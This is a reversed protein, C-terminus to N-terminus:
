ENENGEKMSDLTYILNMTIDEWEGTNINYLLVNHEYGKSLIILGDNSMDHIKIYENEMNIKEDKNYIELISEYTELKYKIICKRDNDDIFYAFIDADVTDSIEGDLSNIEYSFEDDIETKEKSSVAIVKSLGDLLMDAEKGTDKKTKTKYNYIYIKNGDLFTITDDNNWLLNKGEIELFENDVNELFMIQNTKGEILLKDGKKNWIINIMDKFKKRNLEEGKENIIVVNNGDSTVEQIALKKNDESIDTYIIEGESVYIESIKNKNPEYQYISDYTQIFYTNKEGLLIEEIEEIDIYINNNKNHSSLIFDQNAIINKVIVSDGNVLNFRFGLVLMISFLITYGGVYVYRNKKLKEEWSKLNIKDLIFYKLIVFVACWIVINILVWLSSYGAKLILEMGIKTKGMNSISFISNLAEINGKFYIYNQSFFLLIFNWILLLIITVTLDGLNKKNKYKRFGLYLISITGLIVLIQIGILSYWSDTNGQMLRFIGIKIDNDGFNIRFNNGFIGLTFYLWINPLYLLTRFNRMSEAINNGLVGFVGFIYVIITLLGGYILQYKAITIFAIISDYPFIKSIREKKVFISWCLQIIFSLIFIVIIGKIFSFSLKFNINDEILTHSHNILSVLNLLVSYILSTVGYYKLNERSSTSDKYKKYSGVLFSIIPVILLIIYSIKFSFKTIFEIGEIEPEFILNFPVQMSFLYLNISNIFFNDKNGILEAFQEYNDFFIDTKRIFILNLILCLILGVVFAVGAGILSDKLTKKGILFIKKIDKISFKDKRFLNNIKEIDISNYKKIDKYEYGRNGCQSCYNKSIKAGCKNCFNIINKEINLNSIDYTKLKNGCNICYQSNDINEKGCKHCYM